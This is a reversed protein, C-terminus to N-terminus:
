HRALEAAVSEFAGIAHDVDERGAADRVRGGSGEVLVRGAGANGFSGGRLCTGARARLAGPSHTSSEM